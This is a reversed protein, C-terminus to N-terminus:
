CQCAPFDCLRSIHFKKHTIEIIVEWEVTAFEPTSTVLIHSRLTVFRGWFTKFIAAHHPRRGDLPSALKVVTAFAELRAIIRERQTNYSFSLM